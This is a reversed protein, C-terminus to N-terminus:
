DNVKEILNNLNKNLNNVSYEKLIIHYKKKFDENNIYILESLDQSFTKFDADKLILEKNLLNFYNTGTFDCIVAKEGLSWAEQVCSTSFGITINSQEILNYTQWPNTKSRPVLLSEDFGFSKYFSKEDESSGRMCIIIKKRNEDCYKKLFSNTINISYLIKKQIESNKTFKLIAPFQSIFCIDHAKKFKDIKFKNSINNYYLSRIPGLINLSKIVCGNSLFKEKDLDSFLFINSYYYNNKNFSLNCRFGNQITIFKTNSLKSDLYSFLYSNDVFNLICKPKIYEVLALCYSISLTKIYNPKKSFINKIINKIFLFFFNFSMFFIKKQPDLTFVEKKDLRLYEILEDTVTDLLLFKIHSNKEFSLKIRM